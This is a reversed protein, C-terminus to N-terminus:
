KKKLILLQTGDEGYLAVSKDVFFDFSKVLNLADLIKRELDMNPCAMMTAAIAPFSLSRPKDNETIIGSNIMNCGANGHIRKTNMDFSIFPEKELGTPIAEGKVQTIKWEGELAEVMSVNTRPELVMVPRKHANTLIMRQADGKKFGKVIKFANLVNQEMTMDPCMMRTGALTGLDIEGPKSSTNFSGMIRNCGSNGYVKGTTADFGVYPFDKGMGPIVASGNIEVINWEGNLSALPTVEKSSRCSSLAFVACVACLSVFVKKM